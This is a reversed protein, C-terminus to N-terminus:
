RRHRAMVDAASTASSSLEGGVGKLDDSVGSLMPWPPPRSQWRPSGPPAVHAEYDDKISNVSAATEAAKAKAADREASLDTDGAELKDAATRLSAAMSDSRSAGGERGALATVQPRLSPCRRLPAKLSDAVQRYCRRM